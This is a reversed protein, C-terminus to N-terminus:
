NIYGEDKAAKLAKDVDRNDYKGSRVLSAKKFM